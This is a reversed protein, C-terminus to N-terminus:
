FNGTSHDASAGPFGDYDTLKIIMEDGVGFILINSPKLNEHVIGADHLTKLGSAIQSLVSYVFKPTFLEKKQIQKAIMDQLNSTALTM